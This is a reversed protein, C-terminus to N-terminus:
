NKCLVHVHMGSKKAIWHQDFWHGENRADESKDDEENKDSNITANASGLGVSSVFGNFDLSFSANEFCLIWM